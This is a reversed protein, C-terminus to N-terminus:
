VRVSVAISYSLVTSYMLVVVAPVTVTESTAIIAGALELPSTLTVVVVTSGSVDIEIGDTEVLIEMIVLVGGGVNYVVSGMPEDVSFM